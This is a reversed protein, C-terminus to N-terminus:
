PNLRQFTALNLRGRYSVLGNVHSGMCRHRNPTEEGEPGLSDSSARNAAIRGILNGAFKAPM